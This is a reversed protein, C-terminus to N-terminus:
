IRDNSRLEEVYEQADVSFMKEGRGMYKGLELKPSLNRKGDLITIMVEQGGSMNINEDVIIRDGDYYGKVAVFM